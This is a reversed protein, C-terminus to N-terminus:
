GTYVLRTGMNCNAISLTHAILFLECLTKFVTVTGLQVPWTIYIASFIRLWHRYACVIRSTEFNLVYLEVQRLIGIRLALVSCSLGAQGLVQYCIVSRNGMFSFVGCVLGGLFMWVCINTWGFVFYIQEGWVLCTVSKDVGFGCMPVLWLSHVWFGGCWFWM